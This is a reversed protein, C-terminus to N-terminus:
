GAKNRHNLPICQVYIETSSFAPVLCRNRVFSHCNQNHHSVLICTTHLLWHSKLLSQECIQKYAYIYQFHLLLFPLFIFSDNQLNSFLYWHMLHMIFAPQSSSLSSYLLALMNCSFSVCLIHLDMLLHLSLFLWTHCDHSGNSVPDCSKRPDCPIIHRTSFTLSTQFLAWFGSSQWMFIVNFFPLFESYLLLWLPPVSSVIQPLVSPTTVPQKVLLLWFCGPLFAASLTQHIPYVQSGYDRQCDYNWPPLGWSEREM